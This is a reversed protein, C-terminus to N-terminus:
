SSTASMHDSPMVAISSASPVGGCAPTLGSVAMNRIGVSGGGVSFALSQDGRKVLKRSRQRMLSGPERACARSSALSGMTCAPRIACFSPTNRCRIACDRSGNRAYRSSCASLACASAAASACASLRFPSATPPVAFSSGRSTSSGEGGWPVITTFLRGGVLPVIIVCSGAAGREIPSFIVPPEPRSIWAMRETARARELSGIDDCCKYWTAGTPECPGAASPVMTTFPEGAHPATGELPDTNSGADHPLPFDPIGMMELPVVTTLPPSSPVVTMLVSSAARRGRLELPALCSCSPVISSRLESEPLGASITGANIRWLATWGAWGANIRRTFPAGDARGEAAAGVPAATLKAGSSGVPSPFRGFRGSRGPLRLSGDLMPM